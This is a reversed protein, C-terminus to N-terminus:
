YMLHVNQIQPAPMILYLASFQLWEHKLLSRTTENLGPVTKHILTQGLQPLSPCLEFTPLCSLLAHLLLSPIAHFTLNLSFLISLLLVHYFSTFFTAITFDM